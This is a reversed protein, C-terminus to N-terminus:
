SYVLAPIYLFHKKSLFKAIQATLNPQITYAPAFVQTCSYKFRTRHNLLSFSLEEM